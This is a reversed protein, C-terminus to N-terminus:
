QTHCIAGVTKQITVLRRRARLSGLVRGTSLFNDVTTHFYVNSRIDINKIVASPAHTGGGGGDGDKSDKM